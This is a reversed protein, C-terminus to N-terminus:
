AAFRDYARAIHVASEQPSLAVARLHNLTERFRELERAKELYFSGMLTDLYVTDGITPDSFELLIFASDFGMHAGVTFPIVQITVHSLESAKGLHELQKRMVEVGGVHRHLVSEDLLVWYKPPHPGHLREQRRLRYAVREELVDQAMGPLYGKIVARAYDETQLLGPVTTTEYESIATADIELGLFPRFDVDETEQWWVQQKAERALSMLADIQAQDTMGYFLCLDRVDRPLAGRQATEIRSIKAPSCELQEAAEKISRGAQERLERLRSALQRRRLTPNTGAM